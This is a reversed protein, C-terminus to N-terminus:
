QHPRPCAAIGDPFGRDYGDGYGAPYGGAWGLQYGVQIGDGRGEKYVRCPFRQCDEDDCATYEHSMVGM